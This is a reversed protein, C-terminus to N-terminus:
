KGKDKSENITLYIIYENEEIVVDIDWTNSMNEKQWRTLSEEFDKLAYMFEVFSSLRFEVREM